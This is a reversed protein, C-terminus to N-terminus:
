APPSLKNVAIARPQSISLTTVSSAAMPECAHATDLYKVEGDAAIFDDGIHCDEAIGVNVAIKGAPRVLQDLFFVPRHRLMAVRAFGLYREGPLLPANRTELKRSTAHWRSGTSRNGNGASLM